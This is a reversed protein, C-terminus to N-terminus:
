APRQEYDILDEERLLQAGTVYKRTRGNEFQVTYYSDVFAPQALSDHRYVYYRDHSSIRCPRAPAKKYLYEVFFAEDGVQHKRRSSVAAPDAQEYRRVYRGASREHSM